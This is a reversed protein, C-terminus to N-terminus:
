EFYHERANNRNAKKAQWLFLFSHKNNKLYFQWWNKINLGIM